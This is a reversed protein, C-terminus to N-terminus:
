AGSSPWANGSGSGAGASSPSGAAAVQDLEAASLLTPGNQALTAALGLHHTDFSSLTTTDSTMTM